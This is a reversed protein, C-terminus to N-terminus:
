GPLDEANIAFVEGISTETDLWLFALDPYAEELAERGQGIEMVLVGDDNLYAGANSLIRHVLDLGDKGGAHAIKPEAQYEAPFAAIAEDTVYPPNCLILDYRRKKLGSFLDSKRPRVRDELGYDAINRRAVDLADADIDAADVKADEFMMAALIALCGSGTCLDLVNNVSDADGVIDELGEGGAILEGIFSRPVIVREDVYFKYGQIWAEQTLYSAPKRTSVRQEFLVAIKRREASTLRADLWPELEDIPLHLAFLILYAAEDLATATGHGFSLEAERFRSVGYRLWDRLTELSAVADEGCAASGVDNASGM